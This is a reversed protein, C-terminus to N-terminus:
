RSYLMEVDHNALVVIVVRRNRIRGTNTTNDAVPRYQSYGTASMREPSVGNKQFAKVISSARSVSLEWNSPYIINDVPVDDTFGEVKIPNSFERLTASVDALVPMISNQLISSGSHFLINSKIEVEIWFKNRKISVLNKEVLHQ